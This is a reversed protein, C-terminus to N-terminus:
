ACRGDLEAALAAYADGLVQGAPGPLSRAPGGVGSAEDSRLRHPISATVLKGYADQLEAVRAKHESVRADVAIPIIATLAVNPAMDRRILGVMEVTRAVGQMSMREPRTPIIVHDAAVVASVAGPGLDPPGDLIVRDYANVAARTFARRLRFVLGPASSAWVDELDLTAPVLAIACPGDGYVKEEDSWPVCWHPDAQMEGLPAGEPLADDVRLVDALTLDKTTLERAVLSCTAAAQKDVDVVLVSLGQQAWADALNIAATTKGVGGKQNLVAWITM